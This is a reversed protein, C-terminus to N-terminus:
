VLIQIVVLFPEPSSLYHLFLDAISAINEGFRFSKTLYCMDGDIREMANVAGRWDIYKNIHIVLLYLEQIQKLM